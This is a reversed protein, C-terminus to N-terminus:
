SLLNIIVDETKLTNMCTVQKDCRNLYCCLCDVKHSYVIKGNGFVDLETHSTPGVICVVYKNLATAIHLALSDSTFLKNSLYIISIFDEVPNDCGFYVINQKNGVSLKIEKYFDRDENGAIVGVVRRDEVQALLTILEKYGGMTWKKYQWRNGGGLNILIMKDASDIHFKEKVAAISKINVTLQPKSGIYDLGCIEHIIEHYTKRNSKKQNDDVGMLYWELALENVPFPKNNVLEYGFKYNAIISNMIRCSDTGSDFNLAIDFVENYINSLEDDDFYIEDILENDKLMPFSKSKTIWKIEAGPYKEKLSPLISTTRLVDGAADLKIILITEAKEPLTSTKEIEPFDETVNENKEYLTCEPCFVGYTKNPACPRDGLFHKCDFNIKVPNM